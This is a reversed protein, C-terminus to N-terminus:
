RTKYTEYVNGYKTKPMTETENDLAFQITSEETETEDAVSESMAYKGVLILCERDLEDISYDGANSKLAKYEEMKGIRGDYKAFVDSEAKDREAKEAALKYPRLALVEEKLASYNMRSEEVIDAEDLTLWMIRMEEFSSGIKVENNEVVYGVRGNISRYESTAYVYTCQEVYAYKDDYDCLYCWTDSDKTIVSLSSVLTELKERKENATLQFQSISFAEETVESEEATEVEDAVVEAKVETETVDEVETMLEKNDEMTEGEEKTNELSFLKNKIEEIQSAFDSISFKPEVKANIFCPIVNEDPNDYKGLLCLASFSFDLIEVYNSDEELNRFEQVNIEMSQNYWVDDSYRADFLGKFRGVWLIVDAVLYEVEVGYEEVIEWRYSNPKVVGFAQTSPILEWDEDFECEHGAIRYEGDKNKYLFGVVPCYDLTGLNREVVPKAISSFNRNKGVAMVYCKGLAFEDNIQETYQIKITNEISFTKM